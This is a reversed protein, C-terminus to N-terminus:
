RLILPKKCSNFLIPSFYDVVVKYLSLAIRVITATTGTCCVRVTAEGAQQWGAVTERGRGLGLGEGSGGGGVQGWMIQSDKCNNSYNWYLLSWSYGRRSATWRGNNGGGEGGTDGEGERGWMIQSGKCNNSCNWYLLSWSYGRRDVTWRGNNGEGPGGGRGRGGGDGCSEPIRVITATTGTCCVRVTAEGAQQWGAVTERGRGLGLGEGSGGGGGGTGM